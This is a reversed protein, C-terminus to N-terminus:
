TDLARAAPTPNAEGDRPPKSALRWYLAATVLGAVISLAPFVPEHLDSWLYEAFTGAPPGSNEGSAQYAQRVYPLYAVAGLLAGLICTVRATVATVKSALYLCPLFLFATAAYSLVSGIAFFVVIGLIPDRGGAALIFLVGYGLPVPLPALVFAEWTFKM